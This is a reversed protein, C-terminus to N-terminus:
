GEKHNWEWTQVNVVPFVMAKVIHVKTSLTIDRSKLISDLNTMAKRRLFMICLMLDQSRINSADESSFVSTSPSHICTNGVKELNMKPLKMFSRCWSKNESVLLFKFIIKAKVFFPLFTFCCEAFTKCCGIFAAVDLYLSHYCWAGERPVVSWM